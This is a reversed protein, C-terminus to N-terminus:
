FVYAAALSGIVAVSDNEGQKTLNTLGANVSIPYNPFPVVSVGSTLINSTYDLILSVQPAVYFALAGFGDVKKRRDSSKKINIDSFSNNGFGLTLAVPIYDNGWLKTVATYYSPKEKKGEAETEHWLNLGNMGVSVGMGYEKFNHGVNLNLNGRNFAGGDRPDISGIGLSMAGGLVESNGFGMGIFGAGDTALKDKRGSVGAFIVGSSSVLGSPASMAFGPLTAMKNFNEAIYFLKKEINTDNKTFIAVSEGMEMGYSISGLALLPLIVRKM